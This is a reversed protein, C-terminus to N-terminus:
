SRESAGPAMASSPAPAPRLTPSAVTAAPLGTSPLCPRFPQPQALVSECSDPFYPPLDPPDAGLYIQSTEQCFDPPIQYQAVRRFSRRFPSLDVHLPTLPAKSRSELRKRAALSRCPQRLLASSKQVTGFRIAFLSFCLVVVVLSGALRCRSISRKSFSTSSNRCM